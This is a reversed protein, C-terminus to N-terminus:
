AVNLKIPSTWATSALIQARVGVACGAARGLGLVDFEMLAAFLLQKGIGFFDFTGLGTGIDMTPKAARAVRGTGRFTRLATGVQSGTAAPRSPFDDASKGFASDLRDFTGIAARHIGAITEFAAVTTSWKRM